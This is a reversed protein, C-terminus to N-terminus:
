STEDKRRWMVTNLFTNLADNYIYFMDKEEKDVTRRIRVWQAIERELWHVVFTTHYTSGQSITCTCSGKSALQFSNAPKKEGDSRDKVM